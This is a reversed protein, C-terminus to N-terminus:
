ESAAMLGVDSVACADEFSWDPKANEDLILDILRAYREGYGQLMTVQDAVYSPLEVEQGQVTVQAVAVCNEETAHAAGALSTATITFTAVVPAIKHIIFM